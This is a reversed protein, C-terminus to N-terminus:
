PTDTTRNELAEKLETVENIRMQKANNWNIKNMLMNNLIEYVAEAQKINLSPLNNLFALESEYGSILAEVQSESMSQQIVWRNCVGDICEVKEEAFSMSGIFLFIIVMIWKM